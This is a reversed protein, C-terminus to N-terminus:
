LFAGDPSASMAQVVAGEIKTSLLRGGAFRVRAAQDWDISAGFQTEPALSAVKAALTLTALPRGAKSAEAVQLKLNDIRNVLLNGMESELAKNKLQLGQLEKQVAAVNNEAD